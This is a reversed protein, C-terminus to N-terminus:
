IKQKQYQKGYDSQLRTISIEAERTRYNYLGNLPKADLFVQRVFSLRKLPNAQLFHELGLQEPIRMFEQTKDSPLVSDFENAFPSIV